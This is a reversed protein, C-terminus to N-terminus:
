QTTALPGTVAFSLGRLAEALAREGVAPRVQYRSFERRIAYDKRLRDFHAGREVAPMELMRRLAADDRRIDYVHRAAERLVEQSSKGQTSFEIIKGQPPPLARERDWPVPVGLFECLAECLMATGNVKGDFSYGAIHPTGITVRQLLDISIRPENEWVDLVAARLRGAALAASLADAAVVPGRSTNLLIAGPKLRDLFAEDALHYTADEGERTLPVHFTIFDAALLDELPLYSTKETGATERALPPDNKLPIMGLAGARRVVRSGVNGVGIVGITRGQLDMDLGAAVELLAATVYDAVSDANSGPAYAFRIGRDALYGEDVHDTGITATGVFRVRSDDLLGADVRTVSRVLLVDADRVAEPTMSRGPLTAVEGLSGFAERARPINEDAVIRIM